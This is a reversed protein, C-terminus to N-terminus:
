IRRPDGDVVDVVAVDVSVQEGSGVPHPLLQDLVGLVRSRVDDAMVVLDVGFAAVLGVAVTGLREDDVTLRLDEPAYTPDQMLDARLLDLVVRSSVITRSGDPRTDALIPDDQRRLNRARRMVDDALVSWGSPEDQQAVAVARELPDVAPGTGGENVAM